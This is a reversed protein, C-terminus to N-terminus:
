EYNRSFEEENHFIKEVSFYFEEILRYSNMYWAAGSMMDRNM